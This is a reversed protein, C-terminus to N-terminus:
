RTRKKDIDFFVSQLKGISIVHHKYLAMRRCQLSHLQLTKHPTLGGSGKQQKSPVIFSMTRMIALTSPTTILANRIPAGLSRGKRTHGILVRKANLHSEWM